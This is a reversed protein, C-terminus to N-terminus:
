KKIRISQILEQRIEEATPSKASRGLIYAFSDSWEQDNYAAADLNILVRRLPIFYGQTHLDSLYPCGCQDALFELLSQKPM